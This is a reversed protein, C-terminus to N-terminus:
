GEPGDPPRLAFRALVTHEAGTPRLISNLLRIEAIEFASVKLPEDIRPPRGGPVFRCLTLHPVFREGGSGRPRRSLRSVLRRHLEVITGPADTVAAVLRPEARAPPAPLTVLRLPTLTICGLGAAARNVSETVTRVDRDPTEGIFHLTLHVQEPPTPRHPPLALTSLQDILWSAVEPPPYAAVFLRHVVSM